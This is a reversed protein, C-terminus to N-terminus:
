KICNLIDSNWTAKKNLVDDVHNAIVTCNEDSTNYMAAIVIFITNKDEKDQTFYGINALKNIVIQREERNM